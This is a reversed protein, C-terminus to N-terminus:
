GWKVWMHKLDRLSDGSGCWLFFYAVNYLLLLPLMTHRMISDIRLPNEELIRLLRRQLKVKKSRRPYCFTGRSFGKDQKTIKVWFLEFQKRNLGSPGWQEVEKDHHAECEHFVEELERHPVNRLHLDPLAVNIDELSVYGDFNRDLAAHLDWVEDRARVLPREEEAEGSDTESASNDDGINILSGACNPTSAAGGSRQRALATARLRLVSEKARMQRHQHYAVSGPPNLGSVYNLFYNLLFYELAAAVVYVLHFRVYVLLATTHPVGDFSKTTTMLNVMALTTVCGISARAPSQYPAVWFSFYAVMAVLLVPYYVKDRYLALQTRKVTLEVRLQKFRPENPGDRRWTASDYHTEVLKFSHGLTAPVVVPDRGSAWQFDLEDESHGFSGITYACKQSDFPFFMLEMSCRVEGVIHRQWDVSGDAEIRLTQQQSELTPNNLHYIFLDPTWLRDVDDQHRTVYSTKNARRWASSSALRPDLWSMRVYASVKYSQSAQDFDWIRAFQISCSVEVAGDEPPLMNRDYDSTTFLDGLFDASTPQHLGAVVALWVIAAPRQLRQASGNGSGSRGCGPYRRSGHRLPPAGLGDM